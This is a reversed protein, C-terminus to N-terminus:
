MLLIVAALGIYVSLSLGAKAKKREDLVASEIYEDVSCACDGLVKLASSVDGGGLQALVSTLYDREDQKLLRKPYPECFAARVSEEPSSGSDLLEAIRGTIISTSANNDSMFLRSLEPRSVTLERSFRTLLLRLARLLRVRESLRESYSYGTMLSTFFLLLLGATKIM